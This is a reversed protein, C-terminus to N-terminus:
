CCQSSPRAGRQRAARGCRVLWFSLLLLLFEISLFFYRPYVVNSGRVIALGLPFVIVACAFFVAGAPSERGQCWLAAGCLVITLVIGVMPPVGVFQAGFTWALASAYSFMLSQSATGGGIVVQGIDVFYLLAFALWPVAHSVALLLVSRLPIPASPAADSPQQGADVGTPAIQLDGGCGLWRAALWAISGVLAAALFSIFIPQSLLGLVASASFAAAATWRRRAFFRELSDFGVLAFFGAAAYGRVESSYVVMVYSVAFLLMASLAAAAGRRAGIRGAMAVTATGTILAVLRYVLADRDPGVAWLWLTNLYHNNDHHLGTFVEIPRHVRAALDLSWIEDLWLDNRAAALRLVAALVLVVAAVTGEFFSWRDRQIAAREGSSVAM